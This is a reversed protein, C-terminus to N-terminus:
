SAEYPNVAFDPMARLLRADSTWLATCGNLSATAFHLADPTKLGHRARFHAALEYTKPTINVHAFRALASRIANIRGRNGGRLPRVLCELDVLPSTVFRREENSQDIARRAAKGRDGSSLAADIVICSDLYILGVRRAGRPGM